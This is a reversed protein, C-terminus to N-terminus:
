QNELRNNQKTNLRNVQPVLFSKHKLTPPAVSQEPVGCWCLLCLLLLSLLSFGSTVPMQQRFMWKMDKGLLLHPTLNKRGCAAISGM